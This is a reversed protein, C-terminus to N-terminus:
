SNDMTTTSTMSGSTTSTMTSTSSTMTADPTASFVIWCDIIYSFLTIRLVNNQPSNNLVSNGNNTSVNNAQNRAADMAKQSPSRADMDNDLNILVINVASEPLSPNTTPTNTYSLGLPGQSGGTLASSVNNAAQFLDSNVSGQTNDYYLRLQISAIANNGPTNNSNIMNATSYLINNLVTQNVSAYNNNPQTDETGTALSVTTGNLQIVGLSQQQSSSDQRQIIVHQSNGSFDGNKVIVKGISDLFTPIYDGIAHGYTLELQTNFSNGESFSHRVSRIYFLLNRTELYIVEGPQYYENGVVTCSGRLINSRNRTLVMAAYPGCQTDPDTFFPVQIPSTGKFGYNRWSDYDIATASVIGNASGGTINFGAPGGGGNKEDFLPSLTGQVEVTTYDPANEAISLSIIQSNKIVYRSGSGPGYDDYEEDEIMHAYVEPINSNNFIGPTQVSNNTSGDDYLSKIEAANKITLYFTKVAQQWQSIYNSLDQSVKFLDITQGTNVEIPQNPNAQTLYDMSSIASGSKTNIRTILSQVISSQFISSSNSGVNTGNNIAALQAQLAQFLIFYQATNSFAQKTSTGGAVIAAYNNLGQNISSSLADQNAQQILTNNDSITDTSDSVFNFVGAQGASISSNNIFSAATSDGTADLSPYQNLLACSLRIEDEVVEIQKRLSTIQDTFLQNLFAPFLQIGITQKLYLMKYFISSPMKNYQPPRARVHGQSDCFIELNLLDAVNKLQDRVNNYDNAYLKVGDAGSLVQNFAAIDYDNDYYDDVIFLNKDTNARVDYSMRRTMYNIQKRIIDAAENNIPDTQGNILTNNKNSNNTIQTFLTKTSTTINSISSNISTTLSSVQGQLKVFQSNIAPDSSNALSNVLANAAGLGTLASQLTAFKQLKSDLDSNAVNVTFQAQMAQSIAAQNLVLSKFPIFNGWLANSKSLDNRLSDLYSLSSSGGSQPDGQFGNINGTAQFFTAYNYPVGTVLLSVVNMVDLGAFPYKYINFNGVLAPNNINTSLATQTFVGIGQKWKYALGDPLYITKTLKGTNPNIEHDQIYNGQTAKEGALSGLKYKVLSASGTEGIIYKNEDLFELTNPANNNVVSDFNSKFPTLSDYILGNFNEAGPSFNIKGQDFYKTNDKGDVEVVFKGDNSWNSNATDVLGAFVHTGEIEDVFQSRMLAWLYNPFDPGVFLSKEAQIAINSAPNFLIDTANAISDDTTNLNQLIGVGSFMQNLGSMVKNDYQTKSNVYIHVVDMPQIILKGSFNNRLKRRPYNLAQNTTSFDTASNNLLDLQTYIAQVIAQFTFLEDTGVLSYDTTNIVIDADIGAEGAIGGGRLYDPPVIVAGGSYIFPIELAISQIIVTLPTNFISSPEVNFVIPSAGRASRIQNLIGQQTAITDNASDLGQQINKNNYFTNSADSLAVEIDYDTILMAEYPDYISIHFSGPSMLDVCTTTNLSTFNTIEIVGSGPGLTSQFLDTPDTLWTTYQATQNYAMLTRLRDVSSFFSTASQTTFPNTSGFLNFVSGGTANGNNAIDALTIIVPVLQNSISGAASTVQQIKALQELAAIQNCKNQFLLCMAKYYLKEEDDMFDPRFNDSISSFMKKKVLVTANPEQWIIESLKPNTTYPDLRLFGDEVYRREVSSDFEFDGLVSAQDQSDATLGVTSTTNSSLFQSNIATALDGLFDSM